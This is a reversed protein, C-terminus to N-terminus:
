HFIEPFYGSDCGSSKIWIKLSRNLEKKIEDKMSINGEQKDKQLKNM